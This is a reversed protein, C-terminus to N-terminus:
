CLPSRQLVGMVMKRPQLRSGGGCFQGAACCVIAGWDNYLESPLAGTCSTRCRATSGSTATSRTATRSTPPSTASCWSGCRRTKCASSGSCCRCCRPPPSSCPLTCGLAAPPQSSSSSSSALITESHLQLTPLVVYGPAHGRAAPRCLAAEGMRWSAVVVGRGNAAAVVTADAAVGCLRQVGAECVQGRNRLLILAKVLSQRLAPDLVAHHKDLLAM